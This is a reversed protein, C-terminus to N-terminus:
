GASSTGIGTSRATCSRHSPRARGIQTTTQFTFQTAGPDLAALFREADERDPKPPRWKREEDTLPRFALRGLTVTGPPTASDRAAIINESM